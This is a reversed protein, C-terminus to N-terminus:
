TLTPLALSVIRRVDEASAATVKIESTKDNEEYSPSTQLGVSQFNVLNLLDRISQKSAGKESKEIIDQLGTQTRIMQLFQDYPSAQKDFVHIRLIDHAAKEQSREGNKLVRGGRTEVYAEVSPYKFTGGQAGLSKALVDEIKAGSLI